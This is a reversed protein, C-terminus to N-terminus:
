YPLTVTRATRIRPKIEGGAVLLTGDPLALLAAGARAVDRNRRLVTWRGTAPDYVQVYPNFNYWEAPHMLYDPASATLAQLFVDKNVGGAVAIRGDPLATAAAGGLCLENGDPTPADLRTWKNAAPDYALGGTELTPAKGDHRPAFGGWLYLMDRGRADRSAAMVPQTRPNGPMDRLRRWGAAANDLDLVWLQRSPKGNVNGGAVYVKSGVAAAALNDATFPLSWPQEDVRIRGDTCSVTYVKATPGKADTGGILLLSEPLQVTAGYALAAPLSGLRRGDPTYVGRYLQKRSKAGLPDEPFNAGGIIVPKGGLLGAFPASVGHEYGAEPEYDAANSVEAKFTSMPYGAENLLQVETYPRWAFRVYRPRKVGEARLSISSDSTLVADARHWVGDIEAIEFAEVAHSRRGWHLGRGNRLQLVIYPGYAVADTVEPGCPVVDQMGYTHNLAQAALREGVPRKNTPHVDKLNGHDHCVAIWVNDLSDALRRQADRFQAWSERYISSLQVSYFPLGPNNFHSRWSQVFLPFLREWLMTNHANSEGQYWIVGALDFAGMPRMGAGFLYAPEYPHRDGPGPANKNARGQAWPQVYDNKRWNVLIEPMNAELTNVDIWSEVPSGGVANCIIGVPVQLSDRLVRGFHYAVASFRRGNVTDLTQWVAPKFYDLRNVRARLSDPWEVNNTVACAKLDLIRIPNSTYAPITAYDRKAAATQSNVGESTVAAGLTFEMNSQGSALWLEGALLDTLRLTDRGDTVTMTYTPGTLLPATTVTWEGRGNARTTYTQGDLTLIVTAHADAMGNIHLPRNRQLVMGSTYVPALRLPGYRGTLSQYVERALLGAGEANPHVGDPMLNQRDRLPANFDILTAGSAKAVNEIAQTVELRWQQTGSRFRHHKAVIPTLRAIYIKVQPNVQRLTDILSLYDAVFEGGHDPWDRPDTDNIGLHVVAIDPKFQKAQTWEPLSMYPRHGHNLLTAGSHGFNGIEYDPGLLRQLQAPYSNHERDDITLGYTISNGICAVRTKAAACVTALLICLALLSQKFM